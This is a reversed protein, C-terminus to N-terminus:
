NVRLLNFLELKALTLVLPHKKLIEKWIDIICLSLGILVHLLYSIMYLIILGM